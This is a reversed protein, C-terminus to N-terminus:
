GEGQASWEHYHQARELVLSYLKEDVAKRLFGKDLSSDDFGKAVSIVYSRVATFLAPHVKKQRHLESDRLADHNWRSVNGLTAYIDNFLIAEKLQYFADLQSTIAQEYCERRTNGEIEIVSTVSADSQEDWNGREVFDLWLFNYVMEKYLALRLNNLRARNQFYLKTPEAFFATVSATIFAAIMGIITMTTDSM